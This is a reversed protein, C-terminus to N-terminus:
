WTIVYLNRVSRYIVDEIQQHHIALEATECSFCICYVAWSANHKNKPVKEVSESNAGRKDIAHFASLEMINMKKQQQLNQFTQTSSTKRKEITDTVLWGCRLSLCVMCSNLTVALLM